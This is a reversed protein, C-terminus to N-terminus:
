SIIQQVASTQNQNQWKRKLCNAKYLKLYSESDVPKPTWIGGDVKSGCEFSTYEIGSGCPKFKIFFKSYDRIADEEDFPDDPIQLIYPGRMVERASPLTYGFYLISKSSVPYRSREGVFVDEVLTSGNSQRTCFAIMQQRAFLDFNDEGLLTDTYLLHPLAVILFDM